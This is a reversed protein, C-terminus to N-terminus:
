QNAEEKENRMFAEYANVCEPCLLPGYLHLKGWGEPRKLSDLRGYSEKDKDVDELKETQTRGCRRCTFRVTLTVGDDEYENFQPM